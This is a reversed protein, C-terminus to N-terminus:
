KEQPIVLRMSSVRVWNPHRSSETPTREERTPTEISQAFNGFIGYNKNLWYLAGISPSIESYKEKQSNNVRLDSAIGADDALGDGDSDHLLSNNEYGYISVKRISSSVTINDLRAGVLTRLRGNLFSSQAALWQSNTTVKAKLISNTGWIAKEDRVGNTFLANNM